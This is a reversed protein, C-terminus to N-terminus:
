TEPEACTSVAPCERRERAPHDGALRQGPRDRLPDLWAPERGPERAHANEEERERPRTAGQDRQAEQDREANRVAKRFDHHHGRDVLLRFRRMLTPEVSQRVVISPATASAGSTSATADGASAIV